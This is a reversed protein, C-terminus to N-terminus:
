SGVDQSIRWEREFYFNEDDWDQLKADFFKLHSLLHLDLFHIINKLDAHWTEDGAMEGSAVCLRGYCKWFEDFSTRQAAVRGGGYKPYPLLALRGNTPIYM